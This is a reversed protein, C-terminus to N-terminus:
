YLALTATLFFIVIGPGSLLQLRRTPHTETTQDQQLSWRNLLFVFLGWIVFYLITRAIFFPENLYPVKQKLIDDEQM